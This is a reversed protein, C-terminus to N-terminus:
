KKNTKQRTYLDYGISSEVIRVLFVGRRLRKAEAEAGRKTEYTTYLHYREKGFKRTPQTFRRGM